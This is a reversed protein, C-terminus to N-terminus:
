DIHITYTHGFRSIHIDRPKSVEQCEEITAPVPSIALIDCLFGWNKLDGAVGFFYSFVSVFAEFFDERAQRYEDELEHDAETMDAKKKNCRRWKKFKRLREFEAKPENRPNYDFGPFSCFFVDLDSDFELTFAEQFLRKARKYTKSTKSWRRFVRLREFEEKPSARSHYDFDVYNVFFRHVPADTEQVLAQLFQKRIEKYEPSAESWGQLDCLRAFELEEQTRSNYAFGPFQAFFAEM